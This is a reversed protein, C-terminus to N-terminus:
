DPVYRGESAFVEEGDIYTALAKNRADWPDGGFLVFDADKGAELTGLRDEVGLIRAPNTTVTELARQPDLGDRISFVVLDRLHEVPNFPSDTM